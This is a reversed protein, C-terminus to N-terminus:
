AYKKIKEIVETISLNSKIVYDAAGLQMGKEIDSSQGLNSFILVPISATKPNKKLEALVEFGTKKPMILDLLILKPTNNQMLQLAEEGDHAPLVNFGEKALKNQYIKMLFKDDEAVLLLAGTNTPAVEM